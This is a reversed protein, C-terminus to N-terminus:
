SRRKTKPPKLGVLRQMASSIKYARTKKLKTPESFQLDAFGLAMIDIPKFQRQGSVLKSPDISAASADKRSALQKANFLQSQRRIEAAVTASAKRVRGLVIPDDANFAHAIMTLAHISAHIRSVNSLYDNYLANYDINAIIEDHVNPQLGTLKRWGDKFHKLSTIPARVVNKVRGQIKEAYLDRAVDELKVDSSVMRTEADRQQLIGDKVIAIAEDSLLGKADKIWNQTELMIDQLDQDQKSSFKRKLTSFYDQLDELQELTDDRGSTLAHVAQFATQVGGESM